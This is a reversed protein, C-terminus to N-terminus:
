SPGQVLPHSAPKDPRRLTGMVGIITGTNVGGCKM